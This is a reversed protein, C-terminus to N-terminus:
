MASFKNSPGGGNFTRPIAHLGSAANSIKDTAPDIHCLCAGLANTDVDLGHYLLDDGTLAPFVARYAKGHTTRHLSRTQFADVEQILTQDWVADLGAVM